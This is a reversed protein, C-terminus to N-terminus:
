RQICGLQADEAPQSSNGDPFHNLSLIFSEMLGALVDFPEEEDGHFKSCKQSQLGNIEESMSKASSQDNDQVLNPKFFFFNM